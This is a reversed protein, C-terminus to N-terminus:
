VGCNSLQKQKYLRKLEVLSNPLAHSGEKDNNEQPQRQLIIERATLNRPRGGLKGARSRKARLEESIV